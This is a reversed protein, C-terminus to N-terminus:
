TLDYTERAPVSKFEGTEIIFATLRRGYVCGTDLGIAKRGLRPEPAPWHGFLVVKDGDYEDYWPPGNRSARDKGLSRLETLDETTQSHLEVGPRLGAHVVLHSGLDILFPLSNLYPVYHQKDKKLAKHTPKQSEKLKIKEGNWKRRLALDHNGMVSSFRQDTMFLDLVERSKPGKTVLDGVCVVRDDAAFAVQNLLDMLEDYCGHLDGVVITRSAM